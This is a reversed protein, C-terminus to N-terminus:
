TAFSDREIQIFVEGEQLMASYTINGEDQFKLTKGPILNDDKSVIVEPQIDSVGILVAADKLLIRQKNKLQQGQGLVMNHLIQTFIPEKKLDITHRGM